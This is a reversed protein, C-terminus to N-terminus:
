AARERGGGREREGGGREREGREGGRELGREGDVIGEHNAQKSPRGVVVGGRCRFRFGCCLALRRQSQSVPRSSPTARSHSQCVGSARKSSGRLVQFRMQKMLRCPARYPKAVGSTGLAALLMSHLYRSGAPLVWSKFPCCFTRPWLQEQSLSLSLRRHKLLARLPRRTARVAPSRTLETGM